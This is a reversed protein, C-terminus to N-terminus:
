ERVPEGVVLLGPPKSSIELLVTGAGHPIDLVREVMTGPNAHEDIVPRGDQWVRIPRSESGRVWCRLRFRPSQRAMVVVADREVVRMRSGDEGVIEAGFGYSYSAGIRAARLAPRLTTTSSRLDVALSTLALLWAIIAVAMPLHRSSREMAVGAHLWALLAAATVTIAPSQTPLGFLLVAGLGAIISKLVWIEILSASAQPAFLLRLMAVTLGVIAAVGVLGREVLAHRWFGQANDPPLEREGELQHHYSALWNFAGVGVGSIPHEKIARVAALGYGDRHWLTEYLFYQPSALPLTRYFRGIPTTAPARAGLAVVGAFGIGAILAAAILARRPGIRGAIASGLVGFAGAGGLLVVSRAGTLWGAYWLLASLIAGVVVSARSRRSVTWLVLAFPAWITAAVAMPNADAMLGIARGSTTWPPASLFNIEVLGQYLAVSGSVLASALLPWAIRRRVREIDWTLVTDFWLGAALHTITTALIFGLLDRPSSLSLDAERAVIVPWSVAVALLWFLLPWQWQRPSQWETWPTGGVALGAFAALWFPITALTPSVALQLGTSIYSFFLVAITAYEFHLRAACAAIVFTMVGPLVFPTDRAVLWAGIVVALVLSSQITVRALLAPTLRGRSQTTLAEM